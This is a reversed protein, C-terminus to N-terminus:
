QLSQTLQYMPLIISICIVLVIIGVFIILMPEVMRQFREFANFLNEKINTHCIGFVETFTGTKEGSEIISEWDKIKKYVPKDLLRLSQACTNGKHVSTQVKEFQVKLDPDNVSESAFLLADSITIGSDMSMHVVKLWKEIHWYFYIEKVYLLKSLTIRRLQSIYHLVFRTNKFYIFAFSLVFVSILDIYWYQILHESLFIIVKTTIPLNKLDKFLPAIKPIIVLLILLLLAFTMCLVLIPYIFANILKEKQVQQDKLLNSLSLFINDINGTQEAVRIFSIETKSFCTNFDIDSLIDSLKLGSDVEQHIQMTEQCDSAIKTASSLSQGSKLYYYNKKYWLSRYQLNKIKIM